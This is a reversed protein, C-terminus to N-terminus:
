TGCIIDCCWFLWLEEAATALLTSPDSMLSALLQQQSPSSEVGKLEERTVESNRNYLCFRM